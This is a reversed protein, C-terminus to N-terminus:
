NKQTRIRGGPSVIVSYTGADGQIMFTGAPAAKGHQYCRLARKPSSTIRIRGLYRVSKSYPSGNAPDAWWFKHGNDGVEFMTSANAAIAHMRGWYLSTEVLKVGGWLAWEQQFHHINPIAITLLIAGCVIVMLCEVLSYGRM